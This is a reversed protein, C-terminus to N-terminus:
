GKGTVLNYWHVCDVLAAFADEIEYLTVADDLHDCHDVYQRHIEKLNEGAAVPFPKGDLNDWVKAAKMLWNWDAHFLLIEHRYVISGNDLEFWNTQWRTESKDPHGLSWGLFRAIAADSKKIQILTM